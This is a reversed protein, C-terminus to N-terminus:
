EINVSFEDNTIDPTPLSADRALIRDDTYWSRLLGGAVSNDRQPVALVSFDWDPHNAGELTSGFPYEDCQEAPTNPRTPLGTDLYVAAFPGEKYCAGNKHEENARPRARVCSAPSATCARRTPTAGV